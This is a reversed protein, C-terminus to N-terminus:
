QIVETAQLLVHQPITLGLTQATKLNIVFEFERPQEVPLDAPSAGKLIRDVYYAARRILGALSPGYAMLGGAEVGSRWAYITPLRNTIAYDAIQKGARNLAADPMIILGDTEESGAAELITDVSATGVELSRLEVGLAPAADQTERWVIANGPNVPNWLVAVRRAAPSVQKLLELRKGSLQPALESLGTVNGAPRALSGVLGNGVPDAANAMVIPITNTATKAALSAPTSTAVLVDVPLHVLDAALDALQDSRGAAGRYDIVISQGELYGLDRL